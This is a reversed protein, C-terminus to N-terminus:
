WNKWEWRRRSAWFIFKNPFEGGRTPVKLESTDFFDEGALEEEESLQCRGQYPFPNPIKTARWSHFEKAQFIRGLAKAVFSFRKLLFHAWLGRQGIYETSISGMSCMRKLHLQVLSTKRLQQNDKGLRGLKTVEVTLHNWSMM